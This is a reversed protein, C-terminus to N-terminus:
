KEYESYCGQCFSPIKRQLHEHRFEQYEDSNWIEWLKQTKLSGFSKVRDDGIICCPVVNGKASVFVSHWPWNCLKQFNLQNETYVQFPLGLKRATDTAINLIEKNKDYDISKETSTLEWEPKGWGSLTIQFTLKHFGINKCLTVINVAEHLNDKQLVTWAHVDIPKRHRKIAHIFNHANSIVQDFNSGRRIKEFTHKTAGDISIEMKSLSSKIINDIIRDNLFSGNTTTEVVIGREAAYEVMAFINKNAFPEGLGQLKIKLLQPNDDIVQQFFELPM